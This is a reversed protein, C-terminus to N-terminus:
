RPLLKKTYKGGFLLILDRSAQASDRPAAEMEAQATGPPAAETEAQATGPPAAKSGAPVKGAAAAEASHAEAAPIPILVAAPGASKQLIEYFSTNPYGFLIRFLSRRVGAYEPSELRTLLYIMQSRSFTRSGVEDACAQQQAEALARKAAPPLDTRAYIANVRRSTEKILTILLDAHAPSVRDSRYGERSLLQAFPTCQKGKQTGTRRLVFGNVCEQLYDMSTRHKQYLNRQPDYYGKERDKRAFFVPKVTRGDAAETLYKRRLRYLERSQDIAFEKKAKDIEIGSMVNLKCVDMYIDRIEEYRAGTNLMHWIKTNLEQSLNVIEGILNNSTRVDLDSLSAATYVRDTKIGSVKCVAVRFQDYNKRAARILLPEDTLLVADSDFDCGSLRQLVNEGISNICVVEDTLNLYTDIAANATNYPLWINGMSVHPSRVGLLTKGYPFRSSRIRGQGLQSVGRFTGIAAQLMEIPNGCLTSYNGSIPIHGLKTQRILAKLVDARFECYLKTEAFADNIGLLAYVIESSTKLPRVPAPESAAAAAHFGLHYRMVAPDTKLLTMYTFVPSLLAATEEKSLQLTNLLQYHARVMRGEFFPPEKEHKVVGFLPPVRALWQRLTGFKLYKISSRTTILKIESISGALTFGKLQSVETIQHDAFWKQLNANFCCCKFFLNRLLLMGKDRYPGMASRDILGQGDWISNRITDQKEEATLQGNKEEVSIVDDKFVSVYDDIVLIQEPRLQLTGIIASAPLAIYSEFAALNLPQGPKIKLGCLEWRRMSPYLRENIFLCKGERASGSSRKWRVYRIGDSVFGDQYLLTRIEATSLVRCPTKRRRYTGDAYTFYPGLMEPPLPAAM